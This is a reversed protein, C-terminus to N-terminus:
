RRESRVTGGVCCGVSGGEGGGATGPQGCVSVFLNEEEEKSSPLAAPVCKHGNAIQCHRTLSPKKKKKPYPFASPITHCFIPTYLSCQTCATFLGSAPLAHAAIQASLLLLFLPLSPSLSLIVTSFLIAFVKSHANRSCECSNLWIVHCEVM